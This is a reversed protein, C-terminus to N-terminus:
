GIFEVYGFYGNIIKLLEGPWVSAGARPLM